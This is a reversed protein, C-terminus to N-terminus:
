SSPPHTCVSCFLVRSALFITHSTSGAGVAGRRPTHPILRERLKQQGAPYLIVMLGKIWLFASLLVGTSSALSEFKLGRYVVVCHWGGVRLCFPGGLQRSLKRPVYEFMITEIASVNSLAAGFPTASSNNPAAAGTPYLAAIRDRALPAAGSCQSM